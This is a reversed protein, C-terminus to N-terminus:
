FIPFQDAFFLSFIHIPINGLGLLFLKDLFSLGLNYTSNDTPVFIFLFIGFVLNLLFTNLLINRTM